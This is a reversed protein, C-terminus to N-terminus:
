VLFIQGILLITSRVWKISIIDTLNKNKSKFSIIERHMM